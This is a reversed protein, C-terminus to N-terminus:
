LVYAEGNAPLDRLHRALLLPIAEVLPLLAGDHDAGDRLVIDHVTPATVGREADLHKWVGEQLLRQVRASDADGVDLSARAIENRDNCNGDATGIPLM